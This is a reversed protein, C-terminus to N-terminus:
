KKLSRKDAGVLRILQSYNFVRSYLRDGIAERLADGALNSTYINTKGADIRNNIINLINEMEFETFGKTGIDDWIVLDANTVNEKIYTIYELKQSINDKLNLLFKPVNIFLCKCILESRYWIKEIYTNLLRLAWSTKGNGVQYSYIYLNNGESVFQEINNEINKLLQFAVLDSKDEDLWLDIHQKQKDTLLAAEQLKDIKFLKLCFPALTNNTIPCNGERYKKCNETFNCNNLEM